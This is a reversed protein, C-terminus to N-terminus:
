SYFRCIFPNFHIFINSEKFDRKKEEINLYLHQFFLNLCWKHKQIQQEFPHQLCSHHVFFTFHTLLASSLSSKSCDFYTHWDTQNVWHVGLQTLDNECVERVTAWVQCCHENLFFVCMNNKNRLHFIVHTRFHHLSCLGESFPVHISCYSTHICASANHQAKQKSWKCKSIPYGARCHPCCLLQLLLM